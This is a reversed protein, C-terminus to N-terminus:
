RARGSIQSAAHTTLTSGFALIVEPRSAVIRRLRRWDDCGYKSDRENNRFIEEM